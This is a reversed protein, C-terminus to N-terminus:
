RWVAVPQGETNERAAARLVDAYVDLV